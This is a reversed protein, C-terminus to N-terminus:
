PLKLFKKVLQMKYWVVQYHDVSCHTATLLLMFSMEDHMEIFSSIRTLSNIEYFLVWFLLVKCMSNTSYMHLEMGDMLLMRFFLVFSSFSCIRTKPMYFRLVIFHILCLLRRPQKKNNNNYLKNTFFTLVSFYFSLFAIWMLLSNNNSGSSLIRKWVSM